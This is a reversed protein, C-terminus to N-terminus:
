FSFLVIGNYELAYLLIIPVALTLTVVFIIFAMWSWPNQKEPKRFPCDPEGCAGSRGHAPIEAFCIPCINNEM